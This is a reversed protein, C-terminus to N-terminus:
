FAFFRIKAQIIVFTKSIAYRIL